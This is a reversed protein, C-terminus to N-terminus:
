IAFSTFKMRGMQGKVWGSLSRDPIVPRDLGLYQTGLRFAITSNNYDKTHGQQLDFGCGALKM